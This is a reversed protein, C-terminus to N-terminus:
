DISYEKELIYNKKKVKLICLRNEDSGTIKASFAYSSINFCQSGKKIEQSKYGDNTVQTMAKM